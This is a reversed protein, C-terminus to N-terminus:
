AVRVGCEVARQATTLLDLPPVEHPALHFPEGDELCADARPVHGVRFLHLTTELRQLLHALIQPLHRWATAPCAVPGGSIRLTGSAGRRCGRDRGGPPSNVAPEEHGAEDQGEAGRAPM